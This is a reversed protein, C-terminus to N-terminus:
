QETNLKRHKRSYRRRTQKADEHKRSHTSHTSGKLQLYQSLVLTVAGMALAVGAATELHGSWDYLPPIFNCIISIVSFIASLYGFGFIIYELKQGIWRYIARGNINIM